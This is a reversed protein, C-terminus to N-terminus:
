KEAGKEIAAVMIEGDGKGHGCCASLTAYGAQWLALVTGALCRDIMVTANRVRNPTLCRSPPRMEITEGWSCM